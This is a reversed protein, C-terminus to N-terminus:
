NLNNEKKRKCFSLWIPNPFGDNKKSDMEIKDSVKVSYEFLVRALCVKMMTTAFKMAICIRPGNGFPMFFPTPKYSSDSFRDPNFVDPSPYHQPDMQLPSLPVYVLLDKELTLTTGTLTYPETVIRILVTTLNYMRLTEQIVKDLYEMDRVAEYTWGEHKRITLYIEEFVRKQIDPSKAVELLASSITSVAPRLGGTIFNFVLAAIRDETFMQEKQPFNAGLHVEKMYSNTFTDEQFISGDEDLEFGSEEKDKLEMLLNLFDNRKINNQKRYRISDKTLNIFFDSVSRYVAKIGLFNVVKPFVFFMAIRIARFLNFSFVNDIATKFKKKQESNSLLQVGFACSAIVETAYVFMLSGVDVPKSSIIQDEIQCTILECCKIIQDFMGKVKTSTFSPNLKSRMIRWSEGRANFLTKMLPEEFKSESRDHFSTFNQILIQEVLNPNCVILVPRSFFYIGGFGNDKFANYCKTSFDTWTSRQLLESRVNGFLWDPELFPVGRDKWYSFKKNRNSYTIYVFYVFVIVLVLTFLYENCFM